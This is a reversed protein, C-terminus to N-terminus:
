ISAAAMCAPLDEAGRPECPNPPRPALWSAYFKNVLPVSVYQCEPVEGPALSIAMPYANGGRLPTPLPTLKGALCCYPGHYLM